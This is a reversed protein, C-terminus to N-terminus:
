TRDDKQEEEVKDYGYFIFYVVVGVLTIIMFIGIAFLYWLIGGVVGIIFGAWNLKKVTAPDMKKVWRDAYKYVIIMAVVIGVVIAFDIFSM